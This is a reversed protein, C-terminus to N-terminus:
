NNTKPCRKDTFRCSWQPVVVGRAKGVEASRNEGKPEFNPMFSLFLKLVNCSGWQMLSKITVDPLKGSDQRPHLLKHLLKKPTDRQRMWNRLDRVGVDSEGLLPHEQWSGCCKGMRGTIGAGPAGLSHINVVRGQLDYEIFWCSGREAKEACPMWSEAQREM